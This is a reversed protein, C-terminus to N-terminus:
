MMAFFISKQENASLHVEEGTQPEIFIRGKETLAMVIAHGGKGNDAQYWIPGVALAMANSDSQFNESYFRSQALEAYYAAFHRCNFRPDWKVIGMRSLESRYDQYFKKLWVSNVESYAADGMQALPMERAIDARTLIKGTIIKASKAHATASFLSLTLLLAIRLLFSSTKM